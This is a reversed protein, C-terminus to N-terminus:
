LYERSTYMVCSDWSVLSECSLVNQGRFLCRSQLVCCMRPIDEANSHPFRTTHVPHFGWEGSCPYLYIYYLSISGVSFVQLWSFFETATADYCRTRYYAMVTTSNTHFSSFRLLWPFGLHLVFGRGIYRLFGKFRASCSLFRLAPILQVWCNKIYAAILLIASL